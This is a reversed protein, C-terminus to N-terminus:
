IHNDVEKLIKNKLEIPLIQWNLYNGADDLIETVHVDDIIRRCIGRRNDADAGFDHDTHYTVNADCVFMEDNLYVKYVIRQQAM